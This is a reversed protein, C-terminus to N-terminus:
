RLRHHGVVPSRQAPDAVFPDAIPRRRRGNTCYRPRAARDRRRDMGPRGPRADMRGPRGAAVPDGRGPHQVDPGPGLEGGGGATVPFRPHVPREGRDRRGARARGPVAARDVARRRRRLGKQPAFYYADFEGPHVPLGAAASTADVLVLAGADAGPVRRVPMSGRDLDRQPHARLRGGRGRGRRRTAAPRPRSWPRARVAVPRRGTVTAFKASFEGFSLHQAHERVLGFAAADWFASTGGNGLVVTYGDPLAFLEALGARVRHVLSRVPPQRHSTGLYASGSRALAALQEPRVKAPGSGFRGDGAQARGPDGTPENQCGVPATGPDLSLM